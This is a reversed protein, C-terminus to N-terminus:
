KGDDALARRLYKGHSVTDFQVLHNRLSRSALYKEVLARLPGSGDRVERV